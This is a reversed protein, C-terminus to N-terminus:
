STLRPKISDEFCELAAAIADDMDYYKYDGLRGGFILNSSEKALEKYSKFLEKNALTDVPYYVDDEPKAFRSFEKYIITKDSSAKEPHFHKFEHIRTYAKGLDAYNMVSTGQFDSIHHREVEFDLTRWDLPGLKYDFYEDIAGTYCIISDSSIENSIEKFDTNLKINIKPHNLLKEFLEGYGNEPIGEYRDSFYQNNYNYRVPLRTIINESLDTPDKEWQKATYGKIFAEYLPRGILSIAKDELNKPNNISEKLVEKKIFEKAELPSLNKRYFANITNLNIPMSFIEDKHQTWVTHRYENFSTFKNIYNWVDENSTHFIHSGYKHVDIGTEEDIESWCNGGIHSRREFMDVNLGLSRTIKEAIVSAFLGTGVIIIKKM